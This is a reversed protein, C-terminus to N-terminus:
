EYVKRHGIRLILVRDKVIKAYIVIYEGLRLKYLGSFEGHLREGVSPDDSLLEGIQSLIKSATAKDLQMLDRHVSSKYEIRCVM